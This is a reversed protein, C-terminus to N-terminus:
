IWYGIFFFLEILRIYFVFYWNDVLKYWIIFIYIIFLNIVMLVYNSDLFVSLIIYWYKYYENIIKMGLVRFWILVFCFMFFCDLEYLFVINKNSM